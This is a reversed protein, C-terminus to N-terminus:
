LTAKERSKCYEEYELRRRDESRIRAERRKQFVVENRMMVYSLHITTQSIVLTALGTVVGATYFPIRRHLKNNLYWFTSASTALTTAGAALGVMWARQEAKELKEECDDVASRHGYNPLTPNSTPM